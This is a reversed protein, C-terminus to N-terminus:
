TGDNYYIKNEIENRKILLDNIKYHFNILNINEININKLMYILNHREIEIQKNIKKLKDHDNM